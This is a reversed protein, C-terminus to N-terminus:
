SVSRTVQRRRENSVPGNFCHRWGALGDCTPAQSRTTQVWVAHTFAKGGSALQKAVLRHARRRRSPALDNLPPVGLALPTGVRGDRVNCPPLKRRSGEDGGNSTGVGAGMSGRGIQYSPAGASVQSPTTSSLSAIPRGRDQIQRCVETFLPRARNGCRRRSPTRNKRAPSIRWHSVSFSVVTTASLGDTTGMVLDPLRFWRRALDPSRNSRSSIVPLHGQSIIM